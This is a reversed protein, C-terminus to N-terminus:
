FLDDDSSSEDADQFLYEPEKSKKPPPKMRVQVIRWVSGFTKKMFWIGSFELVVDCVTNEELVDSNVLEKTHSYVRTLTKTKTKLKSVNMCGSSISPTYAAELTKDTLVKGFWVNSNEKAAELNQTDVTQIKDCSQDSLSLTLDDDDFKTLLKVNNLQVLVRNGDSDLVKSYYRGDPLQTPTSYQM